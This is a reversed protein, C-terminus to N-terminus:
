ACFHEHQRMLPQSVNLEEVEEGEHLSCAFVLLLIGEALESCSSSITNIDAVRYQISSGSSPEGGITVLLENQYISYNYCFANAHSTM